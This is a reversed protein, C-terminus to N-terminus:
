IINYGFFYVQIYYFSRIATTVKYFSIKLCFIDDLINIM